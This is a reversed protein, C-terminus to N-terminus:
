VTSLLEHFAGKAYKKFYKELKFTFSFLWHFPASILIHGLFFQYKNNNKLFNYLAGLVMAMKASMKPVSSM